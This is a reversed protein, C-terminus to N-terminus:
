FIQHFQCDLGIYKYERAFAASMYRPCILLTVIPSSVFACTSNWFWQAAIETRDVKATRAQRLGSIVLTAPLLSM